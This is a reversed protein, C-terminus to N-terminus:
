KICIYAIATNLWTVLILLLMTWREGPSAAARWLFGVRELPLSRMHLALETWLVRRYPLHLGTLLVNGLLGCSSVSTVNLRRRGATWSTSRPLRRHRREGNGRVPQRRRRRRTASLHTRPRRSRRPPRPTPRVPTRRHAPPRPAPLLRRRPVPRRRRRAAVDALAPEAGSGRQRVRVGAPRREHEGDGGSLSSRVSTGFEVSKPAPGLLTRHLDDKGKAGEGRKRKRGKGKM